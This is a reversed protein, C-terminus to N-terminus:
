KLVFSSKISSNYTEIFFSYVEEIKFSISLIFDSRPFNRKIHDLEQFQAISLSKLNLNKNNNYKRKSNEEEKVVDEFLKNFNKNKNSNTNTNSTKIPNNNSQWNIKESKKEKEKPVEWDRNMYDKVIKIFVKIIEYSIMKSM